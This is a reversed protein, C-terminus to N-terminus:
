HANFISKSLSGTKFLVTVLLGACAVCKWFAFGYNTISTIDPLISVMFGSYIAVCVLMLFGQFALATISKIYNQGIGSTAHNNLTALPIAALSIMLYIEMMRGYMIIWIALGLICSVFQLIFSQAVLMVLANFSENVLSAQLGATLASIDMEANAGAIATGSHTTVWVGVDFIGLVLTYSNSIILVAISTKFIWKLLIATDIDRFNNKDIIMQILEICAVITLICGAIPVIVSDHVSEIIAFISSNWSAPDASALGAVDGVYTNIFDIASTLNGAIIECMIEKLWLEISDFLADM